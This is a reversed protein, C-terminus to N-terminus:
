KLDVVRNLSSERNALQEILDVLEELLEDMETTKIQASDWSEHVQVKDRAPMSCNWLIGVDSRSVMSGSTVEEVDPHRGSALQFYAEAPARGEMVDGTNGERKNMERVLTDHPAYVHKNEIPLIGERDLIQGRISAALYKPIV